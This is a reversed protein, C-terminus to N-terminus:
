LSCACGVSGTPCREKQAGAPTRRCWPSCCRRNITTIYISHRAHSLMSSINGNLYRRGGRTYNSLLLDGTEASHLLAPRKRGMWFRGFLQMAERALPGQLKIHTDRWRREGYITRSNERHINFGGVYACHGDVVLLKRHNRRNYRWPHRWDWRHFWRVQIGYHRLEASLRHSHWFLSGAADLHVRVIIDQRAREILSDAFLRGIEDDAFIYSELLVHDQASAISALMDAYLTDGETFLQFSGSNLVPEKGPL